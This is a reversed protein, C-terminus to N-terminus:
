LAEVDAKAPVADNKLYGEQMTVHTNYSCYQVTMKDPHCRLRHSRLTSAYSFREDCWKCTLPKDGTHTYMHVKLTQRRKFAKNCYSCVHRCKDEHVLLHKRLTRRSNLVRNCVYCAYSTDEHTDMHTKLNSYTKFPKSCKRCVFPKDDSHIARHQRLEGNTGCAYGCLDCVYSKIKDHVVRKHSTAASPTTFKLECIECSYIKREEIPIHVRMHSKLSDKSTFIKDCSSCCFKRESKPVHRMKHKNMAAITKTIRPCKDCCIVNPNKHDQVHKYLVSKSKLTIGCICNVVPTIKHERESHSKLNYWSKCQKQCTSCTFNVFDTVNLSSYKNENQKDSESEETDKKLKRSEIRHDSVHKYLVSKSRIIFGCVCFLVPKSKHIKAYHVRLGSWTKVAEECVSCELKVFDRINLNSKKLIKKLEIEETESLVKRKTKKAKLEKLTALTMADSMDEDDDDSDNKNDNDYDEAEFGSMSEDNNIASVLDDATLEHKVESKIPPINFDIGIDEELKITYKECTDLYMKRLTEQVKFCELVFLQFTVMKEECNLCVKTPLDDHEAVPIQMFDQIMKLINKNNEDKLDKSFEDKKACLRCLEKINLAMKM